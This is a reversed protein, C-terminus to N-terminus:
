QGPLSWTFIQELLMYVTNFINERNDPTVTLLILDKRERISNLFTTDAKKLVGLVPIESSLCDQVIKQFRCAKNEFFGLEDMIILDPKQELCRQLIIVGFNDFTDPVAIWRQNKCYGILPHEEAQSYDNMSEMYFGCLQNQEYHRQTKFGGVNIQFDGTIRNIITSKGVQIDGTLFINKVMTKV